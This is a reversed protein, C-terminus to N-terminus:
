HGKQMIFGLGALYALAPPFPKELNCASRTPTSRRRREQDVGDARLEHDRQDKNAVFNLTYVVDDADM